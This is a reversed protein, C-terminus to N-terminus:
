YVGPVFRRVSKSYADYGPFRARLYREERRAKQDLLVLLLVWIVAAIASGWALAWGGMVLLLSTYLPHRIWSYVGHRVLEGTERPHPHPTRNAGLALVALIGLAGGLATIGWGVVQQLLSIGSTRYVPAAGLIALCFLNQIWIWWRDKRPPAM